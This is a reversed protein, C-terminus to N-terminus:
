RAPLPLRATGSGVRDPTTRTACIGAAGRRRPRGARRGDGRRDGHHGREVQARHGPADVAQALNLQAEPLGVYQVAQAAATAVLLATPDAM